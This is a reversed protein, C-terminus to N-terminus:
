RSFDVVTSGLLTQGTITFVCKRPEASPPASVTGNWFKLGAISQRLVVKGDLAVRVVRTAKPLLTLHLEGGRCNYVTVSAPVYIDGNAQINTTVLSLRAPGQLHWLTLGAVDLGTEAIHAVPTGFFENVDSAVIYHDNTPLLGSVPVTVQTQTMPGPVASPWLALVDNIRANWFREQWVTNWYVEGNYVYAVPSSTARDIWDPPSGVINAQAAKVQTEIDGAAVTSTAVLLALALAPLLLWARRFAGAFLGLGVLSGILVLNDPTTWHWRSLIAIGFSDPLANASVLSNWPATVVLALVAFAAVLQVLSRKPHRSLWLAFTVFLLPPLAALDRGLLHPAFRAAFFGVQATVLVVVSATVAILARAGPDRERGRFAEILLFVLAAFPALATSLALYAFHDYTLRLGAGIPYSGGVTVSYAGFLGPFAAGIAAGAVAIAWVPWFARLKSRDRAFVADLLIAAVFAAVFAVAQVRTLVATGILALAVAQSRLTATEVARAVALLALASLPYFLAETMVLGSYLLLPSAVALAAAVLTYPAPMLKRGYAVLPLAVLSTGIAQVVKLTALGTAAKGISLPLGVLAPYLVGYGALQGNLALTGHEWLALGRSAYIAEDPMIWLGSLRNAAVWHL